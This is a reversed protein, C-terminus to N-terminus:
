HETDWCDRGCLQQLHRQQAPHIKSTFSKKKEEAELIAACMDGDLPKYFWGKGLEAVEM